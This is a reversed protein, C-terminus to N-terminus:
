FCHLFLAAYILAFLITLPLAGNKRLILAFRLEFVFLTFIKVSKTKM